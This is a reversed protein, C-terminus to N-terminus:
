DMSELVKCVEVTLGAKLLSVIWARQQESLRDRPGKVEVLKAEGRIVYREAKETGEAEVPETFELTDVEENCDCSRCNIDSITRRLSSPKRGGSHLTLVEYIGSNAQCEFM